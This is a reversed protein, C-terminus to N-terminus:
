NDSYVNYISDILWHNSLKTLNYTPRYFKGFSVKVIANNGIIKRKISKMSDLNEWVDMYDQSKMILDAEFGYAPGDNQPHEKFYKDSQNFFNRLDSIFKNSVCNSKSLESLYEESKESDISYFTTTDELGGPIFNIKNLRNENQHYWKIFTLITSDPLEKGTLVIANSNRQTCASIFLLVLLLISTKLNEM